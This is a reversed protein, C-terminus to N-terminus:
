ATLHLALRADAVGLFEVHIQGDANQYSGTGGTVPLNFPVPRVGEPAPDFVVRAM